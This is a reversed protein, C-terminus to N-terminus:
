AAWERFRLPVDLTSLHPSTLWNDALTDTDPALVAEVTGDWNAYTWATSDDVNRFWTCPLGQLLYSGVKRWQALESRTLRAVVEWVGVKALKLGRGTNHHGTWVKRSWEWGYHDSRWPKSALFTGPSVNVATYTDSGALNIDFGLFDRLTQRTWTIEFVAGGRFTVGGEHEGCIMSPDVDARLRTQIHACLTALDMYLGDTLPVVVDGGANYNVTLRDTTPGVRFGIDIRM